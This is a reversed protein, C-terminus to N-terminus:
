VHARGIEPIQWSVGVFSQAAFNIFYDPSVERVVNEIAQSDCLDGYILQFRPNQLAKEINSYDPKASRRVMGYIDCDTKELLFDVMYSGDQGTVGTILVKQNKSPFDERFHCGRSEKRNLASEAIMLSTEIM